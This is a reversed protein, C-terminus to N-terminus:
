QMVRAPKPQPLFPALTAADPPTLYDDLYARAADRKRLFAEATMGELRSIAPGLDAPASVTEKLTPCAFLPDDELPGPLRVKILPVGMALATMAATSSQYLVADAEALADELTAAGSEELRGPVLSVGSVALLARLPLVPHARLLLKKGDLADAAKALFRLLRTMSWLGELLVLVTEIRNPPADRVLMWKRDPGRLDCGAEVRDSAHAGLSLFVERAAAGTCVIRSPAPRWAREEPAIYNKLHSPLVACHLYGVVDRRAAAAEKDVAREWPHNEYTHIVRAAPHEILFRRAAAEMMAGFFIHGREAALARSLYSGAPEGSPFRLPPLSFRAQAARWAARVIQALSLFHFMSTAPVDVRRALARVTAWRPGVPMGILLPREGGRRLVDHLSNFYPDRYIPDGNELAGPTAPVVILVDAKTQSVPYRKAALWGVVAYTVEKALRIWGAGTIAPVADGGDALYAEFVPTNFRDRASLWTYWWEPTKANAHSLATVADCFAAVASDPHIYREGDM